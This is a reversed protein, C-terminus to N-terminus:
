SQESAKSAHRWMVLSRSKWESAELRDVSHVALVGDLTCASSARSNSIDPINIQNITELLKKEAISIVFILKM